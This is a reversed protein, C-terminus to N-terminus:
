RFRKDRRSTRVKAATVNSSGMDTTRHSMGITDEQVPLVDWWALTGLRRMRRAQIGYSITRHAIELRPFPLSLPIRRSAEEETRQLFLAMAPDYDGASTRIDPSSMTVTIFATSDPYEPAGLDAFPDTVYDVLGQIRKTVFGGMGLRGACFTALYAAMGRVDNPRLVISKIKVPGAVQVALKVGAYSVEVPLNYLSGRDELKQTVTYTVANTGHPLIGGTHLGDERKLGAGYAAHCFAFNPLSPEIPVPPVYSTVNSLTSINIMTCTAPDIKPPATATSSSKFLHISDISRLNKDNSNQEDGRYLSEHALHAHCSCCRAGRCHSM